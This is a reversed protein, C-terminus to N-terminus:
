RLWTLEPPRWVLAELFSRPMYNDAFFDRALTREGEM